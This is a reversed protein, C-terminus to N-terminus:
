QPHDQSVLLHSSRGLGPGDSPNRFIKQIEILPGRLGPLFDPDDEPLSWGPNDLWLLDSLNSIFLNAVFLNAIFLDAVFLNAIFLDAVFPNAIFLNAIFLNNDSIIVRNSAPIGM